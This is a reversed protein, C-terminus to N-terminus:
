LSVRFQIGKGKFVRCGHLADTAHAVVDAVSRRFNAEGPDTEDRAQGSLVDDTGCIRFSGM